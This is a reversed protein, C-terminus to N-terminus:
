YRWRKIFSNGIALKEKAMTRRQCGLKSFVERAEQV